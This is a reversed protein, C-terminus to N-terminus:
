RVRMPTISLRAKVGGETQVRMETSFADYKSRESEWTIGGNCFGMFDHDGLFHNVFDHYATVSTLTFGDGDYEATGTISYSDYDLYLRGDHRSFWRAVPVSGGGLRLM